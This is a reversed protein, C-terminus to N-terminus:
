EYSIKFFIIKVIHPKESIVSYISINKLNRIIIYYNELKLKYNYRLGARLKDM